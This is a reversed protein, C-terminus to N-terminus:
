PKVPVELLEFLEDKDLLDRVCRVYFALDGAYEQWAKLEKSTTRIQLVTLRSEEYETSDIELEKCASIQNNLISIAYVFQKDSSSSNITINSNVTVTKYFDLVESLKNVTEQAFEYDAKAQKYADLKKM